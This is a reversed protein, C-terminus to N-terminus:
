VVLWNTADAGVLMVSAGAAVNYVADVAGTHISDGVDPYLGLSNAGRNVVICWKGAVAGAMRLANGASAVTTVIHFMANTNLETGGAQSQTTSATIGATMGTTVLPRAMDIFGDLGLCQVSGNHYFGTPM